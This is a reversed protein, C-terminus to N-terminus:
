HNYDANYYRDGIYGNIYTLETTSVNIRVSKGIVASKSEKANDLMLQTVRNASSFEPALEIALNHKLATEYYDPLSVDTTGDPFASLAKMSTLILTYSSDTTVDFSLTSNPYTNRFYIWYPRGTHTKDQINAYTNVDLEHLPYEHGSDKISAQIFEVPKPTTYDGTAGLTFEQDGTTIAIEERTYQYILSSNAPWINIIDNLAELGDSYQQTTPTGGSPIVLLKRLVSKIITNAIM